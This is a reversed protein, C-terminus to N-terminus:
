LGILCALTMYRRGLTDDASRDGDDEQGDDVGSAAVRVIAIYLTQSARCLAMAM